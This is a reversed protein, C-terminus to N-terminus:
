YFNSFKGLTIRKEILNLENDLKSDIFKYDDILIPLKNIMSIIGNNLKIFNLKEKQDLKGSFLIESFHNLHDILKNKVDFNLKVFLKSIAEDNEKSNIILNNLNKTEM